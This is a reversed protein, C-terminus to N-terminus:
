GCRCPAPLCCHPPPTPPTKHTRTTHHRPWAGTSPQLQLITRGVSATTPEPLLLLRPHSLPAGPALAPAPTRSAVPQHCLHARTSRRTCPESQQAAQHPGQRPLCAHRHQLGLRQGDYAWRTYVQRPQWAVRTAAHSVSSCRSVMLLASSSTLPSPWPTLPPHPPLTAFRLPLPGPHSTLGFPSSATRCPLLPLPYIQAIRHHVKHQPTPTNRTTPPPPTHSPASSPAPDAIASAEWVLVLVLCM